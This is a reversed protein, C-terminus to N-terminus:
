QEATVSLYKELDNVTLTREIFKVSVKRVLAVLEDNSAYGQKNTGGALAGLPFVYLFLLLFLSIKKVSLTQV